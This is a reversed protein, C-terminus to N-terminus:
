HGPADATGQRTEAQQRLGRAFEQSTGLDARDAWLGVLESQMLDAGTRIAPADDKLAELFRLVYGNVLSNVYQVTHLACPCMPCHTHM